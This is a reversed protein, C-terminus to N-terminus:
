YILIPSLGLKSELAGKHLLEISEILVAMNSFKPLRYCLTNEFMEFDRSPPDVALAAITSEEFIKLLITFSRKIAIQCVGIDVM